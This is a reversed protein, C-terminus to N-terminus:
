GAARDFWYERALRSDEDVLFLDKCEAFELFCAIVKCQDSNLGSFLVAPDITESPTLLRLFLNADLMAEEDTAPDLVAAITHELLHPLLYTCVM